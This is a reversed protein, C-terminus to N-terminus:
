RRAIIQSDFDNSEANQQVLTQQFRAPEQARDPEGRFFMGSLLVNLMLSGTLLVVGAIGLCGLVRNRM